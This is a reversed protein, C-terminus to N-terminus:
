YDYIHEITAGSQTLDKIVQDLQSVAMVVAIRQYGPKTLINMTFVIKGVKLQTKQPVMASLMILHNDAIDIFSAKSNVLDIAKQTFPQYRPLLAIMSHDDVPAVIQIHQNNVARPAAKVWVGTNVDAVGFTAHTSVEILWAYFSKFLYEISLIFKREWKRFANEGWLSTQQWLGKFSNFFTFEYWPRLPILQAYDNAVQYAYKDEAVQQHHSMWESFRGISNEYLGKFIYELTLSTGIVMIMVHNDVNVPYTKALANCYCYGKWFQGIASFYPFESPLGKELVQAYEQSSYVIYWEPFTLFTSEESRHYGPVKAKVKLAKENLANKQVIKTKNLALQSCEFVGSFVYFGAFIPILMIMLIVVSLWKAIKKVLGMLKRM